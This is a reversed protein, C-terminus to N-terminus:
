KRSQQVYMCICIYVFKFRHMCLEICVFSYVYAYLNSHVVVVVVVDVVVFKFPTKRVFIWPKTKLHNWGISHSLLRARLVISWCLRLM